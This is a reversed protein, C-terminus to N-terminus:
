RSGHRLKGLVFPCLIMGAGTGTGRSRSPLSFFGGQPGCTSPFPRSRRRPTLFQFRGRAAGHSCTPALAVAPVPAAAGRARRSRAM